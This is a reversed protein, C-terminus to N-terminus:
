CASKELRRASLGAVALEKDALRCLSPPPSPSTQSREWITTFTQEPRGTNRSVESWLSKNVGEAGTLLM